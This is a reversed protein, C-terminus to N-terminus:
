LFGDVQKCIKGKNASGYYYVKIPFVMTEDKSGSTAFTEDCPGVEVGDSPCGSVKTASSKGPGLDKMAVCYENFGDLSRKEDVDYVEACVIDNTPGYSCIATIVGTEDDSCSSLTLALAM